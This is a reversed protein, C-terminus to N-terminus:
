PATVLCSAGQTKLKECVAVAAPRDKFPGARLRYFTGRAGLDAKQIDESLDGVADPHRAKFTKWAGEALALDAFSGIQLVAGGSLAM